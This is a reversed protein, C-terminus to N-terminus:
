IGARRQRGDFLRSIERCYECGCKEARGLVLSIEVGRRAYEHYIEEDLANSDYDKLACHKASKAQELSLEKAAYARYIGRLTYYLMQASLPMGASLLQNTRAREAVDDRITSRTVVSTTQTPYTQIQM